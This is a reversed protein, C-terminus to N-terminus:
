KATTGSIVVEGRPRKGGRITKVLREVDERARAELGADVERYLQIQMEVGFREPRFRDFRAHLDGDRNTVLSIFWEGGANGFNEINTMDTPSFYADSPHSHWQLRLEADRGCEVAHDLALAYASGNVHASGATVTQQTIFVDQASAVFFVDSGVRGIYGFGNIETTVPTNVYTAIMDLAGQSLLLKPRILGPADPPSALTHLLQM